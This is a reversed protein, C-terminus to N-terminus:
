SQCRRSSGGRNVGQDGRGCEVPVKRTPHHGPPGGIGPRAAPLVAQRLLWPWHTGSILVLSEDPDLWKRYRPLRMLERTRQTLKLGSLISPHDHLLQRFNKKNIALLITPRTPTAITDYLLRDQVAREGFYDDAQLRALLTPALDRSKLRATIEVEGSYILYFWEPTDGQRYVVEGVEFEHVECLQALHLTHEQSLPRLLHVRQLLSVIDQTSPFM